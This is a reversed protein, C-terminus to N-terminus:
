RTCMSRSCLKNPPITSASSRCGAFGRRRGDARARGIFGAMACCSRGCASVRRSSSQRRRWTGPDPRAAGGTGGEAGVGCEAGRRVSPAGPEARRPPADEGSGRAQAPDPKAGGGRVPPGDRRDRSVGGDGCPTAEHCFSLVEGHPSLTGILRWLSSRRNGIQGRYLPQARCPLAAAVATTHKHVDLGVCSRWEEM